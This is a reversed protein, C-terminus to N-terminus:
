NHLGLLWNDFKSSEMYFTLKVECKILNNECSALAYHNCLNFYKVVFKLDDVM